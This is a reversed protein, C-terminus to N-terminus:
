LHSILPELPYGFQWDFVLLGVITSVSFSDEVARM